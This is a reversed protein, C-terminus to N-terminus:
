LDYLTRSRRRRSRNKEEKGRSFPQQELDWRVKFLCFTEGRETEGLMGRHRQSKKKKGETEEKEEM